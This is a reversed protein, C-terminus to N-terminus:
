YIKAYSPFLGYVGSVYDSSTLTGSRQITGGIRGLSFNTATAQIATGVIALLTLVFKLLKTKINKM